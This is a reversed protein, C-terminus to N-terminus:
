KEKYNGLFSFEDLEDSLACILSLVDKDKINGTFDLYFLYEFSKSFMPRSEIKTLNLGHVAFRCLTSYLSGTTHPLSFCLSIKDANEEIFMKKSVAIFRTCNNPNNQFGRLIIELGYKEAADESCIAAYTNNDQQAIMQAAAATSIYSEIEFKRSNLFDSCQSLAQQHSYVKKIDSLKTGKKAALCHNVPIDVAASIYFRYKLMLDYVDTVSGASSNEIPIIGFEAENNQIASFVDQFRGCFKPECNQFLKQTANHAYTGPVGFCAVKVNQSNFPIDDAASLIENKLQEGSGLMDHQLARSLEMISSYLLRASGGYEEGKEYVSNLIDKEREANFIPLGNELKYEAVRKSCDMRQKFLEILQNDIRDIEDRIPKLSM